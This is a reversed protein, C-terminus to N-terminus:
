SQRSRRIQVLLWENIESELWGVARKGLRVSQPFENTMIMSYITSRSLGTREEVKPRRLIKLAVMEPTTPTM